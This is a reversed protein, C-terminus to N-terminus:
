VSEKVIQRLPSFSRRHMPCPGMKALAKRHAVTGYGYNTEFYYGPYKRACDRMYNDRMVKAYISASAVSLCRRDAHNMSISSDAFGCDPPLHVSDVLVAEPISPLGNVATVMALQVAANIGLHDIVNAEVVGLSMARASDQIEEILVERQRATLLKSDTVARLVNRNRLVEPGLVVAAAYVPGALSGRGVEDVGGITTLGCRLLRGEM